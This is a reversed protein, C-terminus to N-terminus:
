YSSRGGGGSRPARSRTQQTRTTLVPPLTDYEAENVSNNGTFGPNNVSAGGMPVLQYSDGELAGGKTTYLLGGIELTKGIYPENTGYIKYQATNNSPTRATGSLMEENHGPIHPM